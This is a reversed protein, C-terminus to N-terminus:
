QTLQFFFNSYLHYILYFYEDIDIKVSTSLQVGAVCFVIENGLFYVNFYKPM